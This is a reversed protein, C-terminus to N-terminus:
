SCSARAAALSERWRGAVAGPSRRMWAVSASVTAENWVGIAARWRTTADSRGMASAASPIRAPERVAGKSVM